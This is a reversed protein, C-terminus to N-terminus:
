INLFIPLLPDSKDQHLVVTLGNDLTYKNYPIMVDDGKKTVTEISTVGDPLNFKSINTSVQSCATLTLAASASLLLIKRM